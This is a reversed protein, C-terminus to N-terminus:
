VFVLNLKHGLGPVVMPLTHWPVQRLTANHASRPFRVTVEGEKAEITAEGHIFQRFLTPADSHEFGTLTEALMSYLTDAIMTLAADFEENVLIPSSLANLDFFKASKAIHHEVYRRRAHHAVLQELPAQLDNSLIFQPHGGKPGRAVIQRLPGPYGRITIRSEHASVTVPNQYEDSIAITHWDTLQAAQTLLRQGRRRLTIFKVGAQDFIALQKFSAFRADFILMPDVGQKVGRWFSLFSLVHGDVEDRKIEPLVHLMLKTRADQAFLTLTAKDNKVRTVTRRKTGDEKERYRPMTHLALNIARGDYLSLAHCHKVFVQQLRLVHVEDLEYSYNSMAPCRPLANLGAFLGLGQDFSPVAVHAYRETGLLKLALFSYLYSTAPIVQHKPLGAARIVKDIGLRALFPAFLFVGAGASSFREGEVDALSIVSAPASTRGGKAMFGVQQQTRRPLKGFGEEALVREVTRVSIMVGGQALLEAIETSSHNKQRWHRIQNRVEANVRRRKAKGEPVPESFDIKGQKFLHRLLRMYGPSYGFRQAITGLTAREMFSARLAEYQRQWDFKPDTFFTKDYM